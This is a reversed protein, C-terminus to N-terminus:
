RHFSSKVEESSMLGRSRLIDREETRLRLRSALWARFALPWVVDEGIEDGQDTELVGYMVAAITRPAEKQRQSEVCAM